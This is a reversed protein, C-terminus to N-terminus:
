VALAVPAKQRLRKILVAASRNVHRVMEAEAKEPQRKYLADLVRRHEAIREADYDRFSAVVSRYRNIRARLLNLMEVLPANGCERVIVDHFQQGAALTGTVDRHKLRQEMAEVRGAMEELDVTRLRSAALRTALGEISARVIYLQELDAVDLPRVYLRGNPLRAVFGEHELRVLAERIPSRSARFQLALEPESVRRGPAFKGLVLARKIELYVGESRSQRPPITPASRAM